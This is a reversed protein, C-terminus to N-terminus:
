FTEETQEKTCNVDTMSAARWLIFDRERERYVM